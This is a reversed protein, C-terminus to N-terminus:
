AKDSTSFAAQTDAVEAASRCIRAGFGLRRVQTAKVASDDVPRALGALRSALVVAARATLLADDDEVGLDVKLAAADFVLRVVGPVQAIARVQDLAWAGDIVPLVDLPCREAVSCVDAIGRVGPLMLAAVGDLPLTDLQMAFPAQDPRQLRLVQPVSSTGAGDLADRLWCDAGPIPTPGAAYTCAVAM